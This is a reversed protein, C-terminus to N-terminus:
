IMHEFIRIFDKVNTGTQTIQTFFGKKYAAVISLDDWSICLLLLANRNKNKTNESAIYNIAAAQIQYLIKRNCHM